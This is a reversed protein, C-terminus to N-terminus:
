SPTVLRYVSLRTALERELYSASVVPGSDLRTFMGCLHAALHLAKVRVSPAVEENEALAWLTLWIRDEQKLASIRNRRDIKTREEAIAAAVGPNQALRSAEDRITKPLMNATHFSARYADALKMGAAVNCAFCQMKHTLPRHRVLPSIQSEAAKLRAKVAPMKPARM